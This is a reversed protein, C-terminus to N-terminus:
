NIFTCIDGIQWQLIWYQVKPDTIKITDKKANKQPFLYFYNSVSMYQKTRSSSRKVLKAVSVRRSLRLSTTKPVMSIVVWFKDIHCVKSLNKLEMNKTHIFMCDSRGTIMMQGQVQDYYHSTPRLNVEGTEANKYLFPFTKGPEITDNRGKYPCKVEVVHSDGIIGDPSAGLFPLKKYVFFGAKDVTMGSLKEFSKIAVWEYQKGHMIANNTLKPPNLLVRCFKNRDRRGTMKSISGFNSATLRWERQMQWEYVHHQNITEFEIKQVDNEEVDNSNDVWYETMVLEDYWHDEGATQIDAKPYIYGATLDDNEEARFNIMMNRLFDNYYTLRRYKTPRPDSDKHKRKSTMEEAKIPSGGYRRKPQHFTQLRETCSKNTLLIDEYKFIKIMLCLAAVHKCTGHPGRGAPCECHSNLIEGRDNLKLKLSYTVKKKMAARVIGSFFVSTDVVKFSCTDIRRGVM